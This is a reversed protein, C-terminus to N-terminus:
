KWYNVLEILISIRTSPVLLFPFYFLWLYRQIMLIASYMHCVASGAQYEKRYSPLVVCSSFSGSNTLNKVNAFNFCLVLLRFCSFNLSTKAKLICDSLQQNFTRCSNEYVSNFDTYFNTHMNFGQSKNTHFITTSCTAASFLSAKQIQM